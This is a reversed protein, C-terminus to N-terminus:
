IELKVERLRVGGDYVCVAYLASDALPGFAFFGDADTFSADILKYESFDSKGLTDFLLILVDKRAKGSSDVVRGAAAGRTDQGTRVLTEVTEGGSSKIYFKTLTGMCIIEGASLIHTGPIFTFVGRM